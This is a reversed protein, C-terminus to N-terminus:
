EIGFFRINEIYIEMTKRFGEESGSVGQKEAREFHDINCGARCHDAIKLNYHNGRNLTKKIYSSLYTWLTNGEKTLTSSCPQHM